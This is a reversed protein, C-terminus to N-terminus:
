PKGKAAERWQEPTYDCPGDCVNVTALKCPEDCGGIQRKLKHEAEMRKAREDILAEGCKQLDAMCQCGAEIHAAVTQAFPIVCSKLTKGTRSLKFVGGQEKIAAALQKIIGQQIRKLRALTHHANKWRTIESLLFCIRCNNKEHAPDNVSLGDHYDCIMETRADRKM